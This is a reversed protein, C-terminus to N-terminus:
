TNNEHNVRRKKVAKRIEKEIKKLDVQLKRLKKSDKWVFGEPLKFNARRLQELGM